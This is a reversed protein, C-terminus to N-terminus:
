VAFSIETGAKASAVYYYAYDALVALGFIEFVVVLLGVWGGTVSTDNKGNLEHYSSAWFVFSLAHAVFLTFVYHSTWREVPKSSKQFMHLQPIIAVSELYLAWTWAVDTAFNDNLKPHFVIALLLSPILLYLGGLTHPIHRIITKGFSDEERAYTARNVVLVVFLTLITVFFSLLEIYPLYDGSKDVPLYGVGLFTGWFRAFYAVAFLALSKASVGAASKDSILHSVLM